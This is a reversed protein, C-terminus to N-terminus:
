ASWVSGGHCGVYVLRWLAAAISIVSSLLSRCSGAAAQDIVISARM